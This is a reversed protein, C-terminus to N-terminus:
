EDIMIGAFDFRSLLLGDSGDIASAPAVCFGRGAVRLTHAASASAIAAESLEDITCKDEGRTSYLKSQGELIVTVNAPVDHSSLVDRVGAIGIVFRLRQGDRLAPGAFTLRIGHQDPRPGGDCQLEADRWDIDLNQAGRLRARLYGDHTPLCGSVPTQPATAATAAGPADPAAAAAAAAAPHRACGYLSLALLAQILVRTLVITQRNTVTVVAPSATYGRATVQGASAAAVKRV